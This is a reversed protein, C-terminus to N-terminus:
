LFNNELIDVLGWVSIIVFLMDIEWIMHMKAENKADGEKLIYQATYWIVFIVALSMRIPMIAYLIVKIKDILGIVNEAALTLVPIASLFLVTSIYKKM